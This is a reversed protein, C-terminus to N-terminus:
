AMDGCVEDLLEMVEGLIAKIQRATLEAWDGGISPAATLLAEALTETLAVAISTRDVAYTLRNITQEM